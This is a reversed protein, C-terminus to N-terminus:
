EPKLTLAAKSGSSLVPNSSPATILSTRTSDHGDPLCRDYAKYFAAIAARQRAVRAQRRLEAAELEAAARRYDDPTLLPITVPADPVTTTTTFPAIQLVEGREASSWTLVRGYLPTDEVTRPVFAAAARLAEQMVLPSCPEAGRSDTRFNLGTAAAPKVEFELQRQQAHARCSPYSFCLGLIAVLKWHSNM